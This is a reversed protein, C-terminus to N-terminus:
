DWIRIPDYEIQHRKLFELFEEEFSIKLHHNEQDSIYQAVAQVKSRSVSFVGYGNQWAFDRANRFERHLWGSSLSKWKSMAQAISINTALSILGHVHDGTGGVALASGFEKRAIGALYDYLSQRFSLDIIPRRGKTSFIVHFTINSYTHGM